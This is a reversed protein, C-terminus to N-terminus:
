QNGTPLATPGPTPVAIPGPTLTSSPNAATWEGLPMASGDLSGVPHGTPTNGVRAAAAAMDNQVKQNRAQQAHTDAEATNARQQEQMTTYTDTAGKAVGGLVLGWNNNGM